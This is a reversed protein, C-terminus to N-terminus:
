MAAWQAKLKQAIEDSVQAITKGDTVIQVPCLDYVAQREKMLREVKQPLNEGALLPRTMDDKLRDLLTGVRATLCVLTGRSQLIERNKLNLLAGGGTAIVTKDNNAAEAIVESELKRFAEEGQEAFIAQVSRGARKAILTDIDVFEAHLVEALRRGVASKGTGMFGTLVINM